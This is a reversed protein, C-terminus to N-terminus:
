ADVRRDGHHQASVLHRPLKDAPKPELFHAGDRAACLILVGDHVRHCPRLAVPNRSLLLFCSLLVCMPLAGSGGSGYLVASACDCDFMLVACSCARSAMDPM